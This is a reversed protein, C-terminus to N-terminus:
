RGDAEKVIVTGMVTEFPLFAYKTSSEYNPIEQQTHPKYYITDGLKAPSNLYTNEVLRAEGVAIVKARMSLDVINPLYIGDASQKDNEILEILLFGPAPQINDM